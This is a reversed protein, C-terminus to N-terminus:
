GAAAPDSGPRFLANGGHGPLGGGGGRHRRPHCLGREGDRRQDDGGDEGEEDEGFASINLSTDLELEPTDDSEEFQVEAVAPLHAIRRGFEWRKEYSGTTIILLKSIMRTIYGAM